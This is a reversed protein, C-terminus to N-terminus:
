TKVTLNALIEHKTEADEWLCAACAMEEIIAFALIALFIWKYIHCKKAMQDRFKSNVTLNALIEHKTEADEWLCAACAMEVIVAFASIAFNDTQLHSM